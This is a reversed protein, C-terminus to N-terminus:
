PPDSNLLRMWVLYQSCARLCSRTARQMKWFINRQLLCLHILIYFVLQVVSKFSKSKILINKVHGSVKRSQHLVLLFRISYTSREKMRQKDSPVHSRLFIHKLTLELLSDRHMLISAFLNVRCLLFLNHTNCIGSVFVM